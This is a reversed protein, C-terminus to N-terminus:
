RISRFFSAVLLFFILVCKAILSCFFTFLNNIKIIYKLFLIALYLFLLLKTIHIDM